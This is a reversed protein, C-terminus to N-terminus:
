YVEEAAPPELIGTPALDALTLSTRPTQLWELMRARAAAMAAQWTGPRPRHPLADALPARDRWALLDGWVDRYPRQVPRAASETRFLRLHLRDPTAAIRTDLAAGGPGRWSLTEVALIRLREGDWGILAVLDRSTGAETDAGFAIAVIERGAIPLLPLLRLRDAPLTAGAALGGIELRAVGALVAVTFPVRPSDPKLLLASAADAAPPPPAGALLLPAALLARRALQSAPKAGACREQAAAREPAASQEPISDLTRKIYASQAMFMAIM